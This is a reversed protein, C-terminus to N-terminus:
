VLQYWCSGQSIAVFMAPDIVTPPCYRSPFWSFGVISVCVTSPKKHTGGTMFCQHLSYLNVWVTKPRLTDVRSRQVACGDTIHVFSKMFKNGSGERQFFPVPHIDVCVMRKPVREFWIMGAHSQLPRLMIIAPDDM